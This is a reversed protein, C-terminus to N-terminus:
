KILRAVDAKPPVGFTRKYERNFQSPSEYGVIGSTSAADLGEFAMLRRAEQLRLVKQFQLPSMLTILKFYKYLTSVSLYAEKAVIDADFPKNFNAKIWAIAKEIQKSKGVGLAQTKLHHGSPGSLIRYLIERKISPALIKIDEPHNLLTTLRMLPDLIDETAAQINLGPEQCNGVAKVDDIDMVLVSLSAIDINLKLCLYPKDKSAETVQGTLPLDFSVSLYKSRDYDFIHQGVIVRKTGQLVICIAPKHLTHLEQTPCDSRIIELDIIPTTFIGNHKAHPTINKIVRNIIDNM